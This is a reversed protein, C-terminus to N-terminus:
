PAILTRAVRFGIGTIRLVTTFVIRDASRLDRDSLDWSFGRTVRNTCDGGKDALWASGDTPAGNYNNHLCDETWELVNGLM